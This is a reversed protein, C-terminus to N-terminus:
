YVNVKLLANVSAVRMTNHRSIILENNELHTISIYILSPMVM